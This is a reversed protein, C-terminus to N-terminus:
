AEAWRAARARVIPHAAPDRLLAKLQKAELMLVLGAALYVPTYPNEVLSIQVMPRAGWRPHAFVQALVEARVPRKSTLKLVDREIIRPNNLLHAIVREDPDSLLKDLVDKDPRRALARREGLTVERNPFVPIPLLEDAKAVLSPTDDARLTLVREDGEAEAAEFLRTAASPDHGLLRLLGLYALHGPDQRARLKALMAHIAPCLAEAPAQLLYDRWLVERMAVEPVSTLRRMLASPSYRTNM